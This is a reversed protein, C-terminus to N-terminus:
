PTVSSNGPEPTRAVRAELVAFAGLVVLLAILLATGLGDVDEPLGAVLWVLVIPERRLHDHKRHAPV